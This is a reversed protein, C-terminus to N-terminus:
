HFICVTSSQILKRFKNMLNQCIKYFNKKKRKMGMSQYTKICMGIKMKKGLIKMKKMKKKKTENQNKNEKM